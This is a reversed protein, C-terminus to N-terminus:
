SQLGDMFHFIMHEESLNAIHLTLTTLEKISARVNGTQKLERFKHKAKYVVNNPFFAKKFENKFQEWMSITFLGKGMESEKYKWWLMAMEMLYLIITNIRIEDNKVKDCKFYNELHWVLNKVEQADRFGKFAPPKPAEIWAEREEVPTAYRGEEIVEELAKVRASMAELMDM